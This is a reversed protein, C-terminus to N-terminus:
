CRAWLPALVLCCGTNLAVTSAKVSNRPSRLRGSFAHAARPRRRQTCVRCVASALPPGSPAGPPARASVASGLRRCALRVLCRCHSVALARWPRVVGRDSEPSPAAPRANRFCRHWPRCWRFHRRERDRAASALCTAARDSRGAGDASRWCYRVAAALHFVVAALCACRVRLIRRDRAADPLAAPNARLNKRGATTRSTSRRSLRRSQCRWSLCCRVSCVLSRRHHCALHAYLCFAGLWHRRPECVFGFSNRAM